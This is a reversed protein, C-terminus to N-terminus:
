TQPFLFTHNNEEGECSVVKPWLLMCLGAELQLSWQISQAFLVINLQMGVLMEGLISPIYMLM